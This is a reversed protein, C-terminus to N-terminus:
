FSRRRCGKSVILITDAVCCKDKTTGIKVQVQIRSGDSHGFVQVIQGGMREKVGNEDFSIEVEQGIEPHDVCEMLQRKAIVVTLLKDEEFRHGWNLDVGKITEGQKQEKRNAEGEFQNIMKQIRVYTSEDTLRDELNVKKGDKAQLMALYREAEDKSEVDASSIAKDLEAETMKSVEELMGNRDNKKEEIIENIQEDDYKKLGDIVEQPIVEGDTDGVANIEIAEWDKGLMKEKLQRDHAMRCHYGTGDVIFDELARTGKDAREGIEARASQAIFKRLRRNWM